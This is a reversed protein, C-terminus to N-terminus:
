AECELAGAGAEVRELMDFVESSESRMSRCGSGDRASASGECAEDGADLLVVCSGLRKFSFAGSRGFRSLSRMLSFVGACAVAVCAFVVFVVAVLAVEMFAVAVLVVAVFAATLFAVGVFAAVPFVVTMVAAGAFFVAVLGFTALLVEESGADPVEDVASVVSGGAVIPSGGSHSHSPM